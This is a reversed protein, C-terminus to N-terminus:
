LRGTIQRLPHNGIMSLCCAKLSVVDRHIVADDHRGETELIAADLLLKTAKGAGYRIIIKRLALIDKDEESMPEAKPENRSDWIVPDKANTDGKRLLIYDIDDDKRILLKAEEIAKSDQEYYRCFVFPGNPGLSVVTFTYGQTKSM